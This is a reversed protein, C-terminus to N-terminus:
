RALVDGQADVGIAARKGPSQEYTGRWIGDEGLTLEGVSKFGQSELRKRVDDQSLKSLGPTLDGKGRDAPLNPSAQTERGGDAKQAGSENVAKGSCFSMYEDRTLSDQTARSAYAPAARGIVGDKDESRELVGNGNSDLSKWAQLCAADQTDARLPPAALACLIAAFCLKQNIM